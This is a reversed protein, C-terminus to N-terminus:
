YDENRWRSKLVGFDIPTAWALVFHAWVNTKNTSLKQSECQLRKSAFLQLTLPGETSMKENLLRGIELCSSQTWKPKTTLHESSRLSRLSGWWQSMKMQNIECSRYAGFDEVSSEVSAGLVPRASSSNSGSVVAALMSAEVVEGRESGEAPPMVAQWTGDHSRPDWHITFNINSYNRKQM